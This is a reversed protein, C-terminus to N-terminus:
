LAGPGRTSNTNNAPAFEIQELLNITRRAAEQDLVAIAHGVHVIVYDGAAAEPVFALSVEREIGSFKVTAMRLGSEDSVKMVEGPVGLCM